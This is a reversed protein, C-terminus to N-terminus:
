LITCDKDSTFEQKSRWMHPTDIQHDILKRYLTARSVGLEKALPLMGRKWRKVARVLYKHELQALTM